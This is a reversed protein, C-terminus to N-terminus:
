DGKEYAPTYGPVWHREGDVYGERKWVPVRRKLEEIVYRSAEYAEGRHPAAVAIGVSAEGVRLMGVRHVVHIEGTGFRERAEGAIEQMKHEAMEAYAEYELSEVARGGHEGRVVGWFLLAAGDSPSVAAELLERADIAHETVRCTRVAAVSV